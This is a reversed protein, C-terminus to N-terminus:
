ILIRHLQHNAASSFVSGTGASVRGMARVTYGTAAAMLYPLVLTVQSLKAGVSSLSQNASISALTASNGGNRVELTFIGEASAAGNFTVAYVCVALRQYGSPNGAAASNINAVNQDTTNLSVGLGTVTALEPRAATGLRSELLNALQQSLAPYELPHDAPVVYPWGNATTAM